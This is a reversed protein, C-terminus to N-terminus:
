QFLAHVDALHKPIPLHQPCHRECSGCGVCDAPSAAQECLQKYTQVAKWSDRTYRKTENYFRFFDGIPIGKPCHTLCYGCGTCGVANERNMVAAAQRFRELSGEGYVPFDRLNEMVQAPTNMGSLVIEVEPLGMAFSMAHSVPSAGPCLPDLIAAAEPPLSALLGGKLPEMVIVKVGHAAATEYCRRSQITPSDWDLWNLQLLVYDTEPHDTLIKDLLEPTDHYSFGIARTEGSDKLSRLFGFEDYKEAIAYHERTLWHLMYVDFYTVGCRILQQDFQRRCDAREKVMYGAMKNALRYSDRPYREVLHRRLGTESLGDLYTYSTDFYNCGGAMAADIAPAMGDINYTDGLKPIRLFGFGLKNM